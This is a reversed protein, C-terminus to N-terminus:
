KPLRLVDELVAPTIYRSALQTQYAQADAIISNLERAYRWDTLVRRVDPYVFGGVALFFAFADEFIPIFPLAIVIGGITLGILAFALRALLDGRRWVGYGSREARLQDVAMRSYRPIATEEVERRLERWYEVGGTYAEGIRDLKAVAASQLESAADDPDLARRRHECETLLAYVVSGFDFEAGAYNFM